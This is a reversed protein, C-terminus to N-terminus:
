KDHKGSIYAFQRYPIILWVLLLLVFGILLHLEAPTATQPLQGFIKQYNQGQPLNVPMAHSDLSAHRPRTPTVDVAVLSTYRSVPHHNLAVNIVDARVKEKNAGEHVRDMLASIKSRAWLVGVGEGSRGQRMDLTAQWPALSRMGKITVKEGV